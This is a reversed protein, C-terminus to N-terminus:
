NIRGMGVVGLRNMRINEEINRITTTSMTIMADRAGDDKVGPTITSTGLFLERDDVACANASFCM